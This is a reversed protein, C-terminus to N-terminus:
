GGAKLLLSPLNYLPRPAPMAGSAWGLHNRTYPRIVKGGDMNRWRVVAGVAAGSADRYVWLQYRKWTPEHYELAACAAELTEWHKKSKEAKRPKPTITPRYEASGKLQDWLYKFAEGNQCVFCYVLASGDDAQTVSLSPSKDDHTPCCYQGGRNTRKYPKGEAEFFAHVDDFSLHPKTDHDFM